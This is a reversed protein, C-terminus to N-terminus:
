RRFRRRVAALGALGVGFVALSVPEPTKYTQTVNALTMTYGSVPTLNIDKQVVFAMSPTTLNVNSSVTGSYVHSALQGLNMSPVTATEVPSTSQVNEAMSVDALTTGTPTGSVSGTLAGGVNSVKKTGTTITLKVTIDDIGASELITAGNDLRKVTNATSFIAGSANGTGVTGVIEIQPATATSGPGVILQLNLISCSGMASTIAVGGIKAVCYSATITLGGVTVSGGTGSGLATTSWLAVAGAPRTFGCLSLVVALVGIWRKARLM